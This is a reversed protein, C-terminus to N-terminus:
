PTLTGRYFEKPLANSAAITELYYLAGSSDFFELQPGAVWVNTDFASRYDLTFRQDTRGGFLFLNQYTASNTNASRSYALIQVPTLDPVVPSRLIAGEIGVTILQDGDTAAGYLSKGTITGCDTWIIGNTSSLVTGITGIAFYTDQIFTVDNLWRTTGSTRSTWATGNTSTLIRGNQGVAILLGDLCRVRYLWDNIGTNIATWNTADSSTLLTGNDGTAILGGPFSAVSSLLNTTPTAHAAWNTGGPSTLVIGNGGTVVYVGNFFTVGQLDNTTLRPEIAQWFVGYTSVAQTVVMGMDNTYVLNTITNPSVILSGQNGAAVLMNTDGGIGLFISNTVTDPVVELAWDVGNGSTMVTAHDGVAVYLNTAWMVDWLWNRISVASQIWNYSGGGVPYVEAM